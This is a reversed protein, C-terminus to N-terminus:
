PAPLRQRVATAIGDAVLATGSASWHTGATFAALDATALGPTLDVCDAGRSACWRAYVAGARAGPRALDDPMPAEVLLFRAGAATTAAAARDLAVETAADWRAQRAEPDRTAVQWWVEGLDWLRPTVLMRRAVAARDPVPVGHVAGAEDLWPKAFVEFRSANRSVDCSVALLVVLAPQVSAAEAELRLAMQDHAFGSVGLNIVPVGLRQRLLPGLSAEVPLGHGWAFSDGLLAVRPGPEPPPFPAGDRYGADNVGDEGPRHRWGLRPDADDDTPRLWSWRTQYWTLRRGADCACADQPLRAVDPVLLAARLAAEALVLGVAARVLWARAEGV